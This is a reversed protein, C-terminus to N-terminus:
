GDDPPKPKPPEIFPTTADLDGPTEPKEPPPRILHKTADFEGPEAVNAPPLRIHPNTTDLDGPREESDEAAPGVDTTGDPDPKVSKMTWGGPPRGRTRSKTLDDPEAVPEPAAMEPSTQVLLPRHRELFDLERDIAEAADARTDAGTTADSNATETESDVGTVSESVSEVGTVSESVSDPEPDPEPKRDPEPAVTPEYAAEVEVRDKTLDLRASEIRLGDAEAVFHFTASPDTVPVSWEESVEGDVLASQMRALSVDDSWVEIVVDTGDPLGAARVNLWVTAGPSAQKTSWRAGFLAKPGTDMTAAVEPTAGARPPTPEARRAIDSPVSAPQPANGRIVLRQLREATTALHDIRQLLARERRAPPQIQGLLAANHDRLSRLEGQLHGLESERDRGQNELLDIKRLLVAIQGRLQEVSM